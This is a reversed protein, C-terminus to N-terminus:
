VTRRRRNKFFDRRAQQHRKLWEAYQTMQSLTMQSLKRRCHSCTPDDTFRKSIRSKGRPNVKDPNVRLGCLAHVGDLSAHTKANSAALKGAM